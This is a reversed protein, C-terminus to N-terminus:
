KGHNAPPNKGFLKIYDEIRSRRGSGISSIVWIFLAAAILVIIGVIM